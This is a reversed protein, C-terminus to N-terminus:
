VQKKKLLFFSIVWGIPVLMLFWPINDGIFVMIQWITQPFIDVINQGSVSLYKVLAIIFCFSFFLITVIILTKPFPFKKFFLSAMFFISHLILYLCIFYFMMRNKLMSLISLEEVNFGDQFLMEYSSIVIYFILWLSIIFIPLTYLLRVTLKELHSAPLGLSHIASEHNRFDRNVLVTLISGGLLLATVFSVMWISIVGAKHTLSLHAFALGAILVILLLIFAYMVKIKHLAYDVQLLFKIRSLNFEM